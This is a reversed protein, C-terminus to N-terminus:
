KFPLSPFSENGDKLGGLADMWRTMWWLQTQSVCEGAQSRFLELVKKRQSLTYTQM